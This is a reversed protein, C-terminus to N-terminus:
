YDRVLREVIRLHFVLQISRRKESNKGCGPLQEEDRSGGSSRSFHASMDKKGRFGAREDM